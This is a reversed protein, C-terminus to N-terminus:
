VPQGFPFNEFFRHNNISDQKYKGFQVNCEGIFLNADHASYKETIEKRVDALKSSMASLSLEEFGIKLQLLEKQYKSYLDKVSTKYNSVVAADYLEMKRGNFSPEFIKLEKDINNPVPLKNKIKDEVIKYFNIKKTIFEREEICDIVLRSWKRNEQKRQLLLDEISNVDDASMLKNAFLRAQMHM